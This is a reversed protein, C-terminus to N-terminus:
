HEGRGLNCILTGVHTLWLHCLKTESINLSFLNLGTFRAKSLKTYNKDLDLTLIKYITAYLRM